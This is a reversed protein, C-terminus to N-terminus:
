AGGIAERDPAEHARHSAMGIDALAHVAPRPLAELALIMGTELDYGERLLQAVLGAAARGDVLRLPKGVRAQFRSKAGYFSCFPCEGDYLLFPAVLDPIGTERGESAM